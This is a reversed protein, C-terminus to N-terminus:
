TGMEEETYLFGGDEPLDGDKRQPIREFFKMYKEM